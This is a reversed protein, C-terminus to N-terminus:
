KRASGDPRVGQSKIALRGHVVFAVEAGFEVPKGVGRLHDVADARGPLLAGHAAPHSASGDVLASGVGSESRGSWPDPLKRLDAAARDSDCRSRAASSSSAAYASNSATRQHSVSPRGTQALHPEKFTWRWLVRRIKLQPDHLDCNEAVEPVKKWERLSGICCIRSAIAVKVFPALPTGARSSVRDSSTECLVAKTM